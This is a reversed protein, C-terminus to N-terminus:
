RGYREVVWAEAEAESVWDRVAPFAWLAEMYDGAADGVEVGYTPFRSVVPAYFADAIALTLESM